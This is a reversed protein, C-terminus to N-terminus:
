NLTCEFCRDGAAFSSADIDLWTFRWISHEIPRSEISRFTNTQHMSLTQVMHTSQVRNTRRAEELALEEGEKKGRGESKSADCRTPPTPTEGGPRRRRRGRCAGDAPPCFAPPARRIGRCCPGPIGPARPVKRGAGGGGGGGGGEEEARPFAGEGERMGCFSSCPLPLPPQSLFFLSVPSPSFHSTCLWQSPNLAIPAERSSSLRPEIMQIPLM